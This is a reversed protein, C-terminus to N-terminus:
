AARRNLAAVLRELVDTLRDLREVIARERQRATWRHLVHIAQSEPDPPALKLRRL